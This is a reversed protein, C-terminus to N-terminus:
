LKLIGFFINVSGHSCRLMLFSVFIKCHFVSTVHSKLMFILISTCMQENANPFSLVSNTHLDRLLAKRMVLNVSSWHGTMEWHLCFFHVDIRLQDWSSQIINYM